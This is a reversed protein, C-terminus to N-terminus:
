DPCGTVWDLQYMFNVTLQSHSKWRIFKPTVCDLGYCHDSDSAMLVSAPKAQWQPGRSMHTPELGEKKGWKVGYERGAKRGKPRCTRIDPAFVSYKILEWSQTLDSRQLLYRCHIYTGLKFDAERISGPSISGSLPLVGPPLVQPTPFGFPGLHPDMEVQWREHKKKFM